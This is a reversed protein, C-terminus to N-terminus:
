DHAVTPQLLRAATADDVQGFHDYWLGVARFDAPQLPVVVADAERAVRAVGEPSGVPAALIVRAAGRARASRIAAIATAGTALGDDVIVATRDRLDRAPRAGRLRRGRERLEGEARATATRLADPGIGLAALTADDVVRVDGEAVAGIALEPNGPAGIKRVVAVDLPAALGDAVEAAVPIGGRPLGLVVPFAPHEALVHPVLLRGADARDEYADM